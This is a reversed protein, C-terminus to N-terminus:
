CEDESYEAFLPIPKGSPGKLVPDKDLFMAAFQAAQWEFDFHATQKHGKRMIEVTYM